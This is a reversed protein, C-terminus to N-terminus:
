SLDLGSGALNNLLEEVLVLGLLPLEKIDIGLDLFEHSSKEADNLLDVGLVVEGEPSEAKEISNNLIHSSANPVKLVDLSGLLWVSLLVTDLNEVRVDLLLRGHLLSVLSVESGVDEGHEDLSSAVCLALFM